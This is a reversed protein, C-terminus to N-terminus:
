LSSLGILREAVFIMNGYREDQAFYEYFDLKVHGGHPSTPVSMAGIRHEFLRGGGDDDGWLIYQGCSREADFHEAGSRFAFRKDETLVIVKGADGDRVYRADYDRCFCRMEFIDDADDIDRGDISRRLTDDAFGCFRPTYVLINVADGGRQLSGLAAAASEFPANSIFLTCRQLMEEHDRM